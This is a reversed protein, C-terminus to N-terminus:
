FTSLAAVIEKMELGQERAVLALCIWSTSPELAKNKRKQRRTIEAKPLGTKRAIYGLLLREKTMRPDNSNPAAGIQNVDEKTNEIALKESKTEVDSNGILDDTKEFDTFPVPNLLRSPRPAWSLPTKEIMHLSLAPTLVEDENQNIWGKEVLERIAREADDPNLFKLDFSLTREADELEVETESKFLHSLTRIVDLEDPSMDIRFQRGRIFM